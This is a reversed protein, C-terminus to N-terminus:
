EEKDVFAGLISDQMEPTAKYFERWFQRRKSRPWAMTSMFKNLATVARRSKKIWRSFRFAIWKTRILKFINM